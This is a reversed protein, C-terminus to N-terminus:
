FLTPNHPDLRPDPTISTERVPGAHATWRYASNRHRECALVARYADAGRGEYLVVAPAHCSACLAM